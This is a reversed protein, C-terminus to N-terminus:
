GLVDMDYDFLSRLKWIDYFDKMRSNLMGRRVLTEFKEAIVTEPPYIRLRPAPFELLTPFVTVPGARTSPQGRVAPFFPPPPFKKAM